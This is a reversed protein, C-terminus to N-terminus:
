ERRLSWLGDRLMADVLLRRHSASPLVFHLRRTGAGRRWHVVMSRPEVVKVVVAGVEERPVRLIVTEAADGGASSLRLIYLSLPSLVLVVDGTTVNGDGGDGADGSDSGRDRQHQQHPQRRWECPVHVQYTEHPLLLKAQYWRAASLRGLLRRRPRVPTPSVNIGTSYLIGQSVQSVLDAAGGVPKAVVGLMGIGIGKLVSGVSWGEDTGTEIPRAVIGAAAGVTGDGLAGLGRMLGNTVTDPAPQRRASEHKAIHRTDLSLRDLNRAVSSAFGSLSTLAGGSVHSLFSVWGQAIGRLLAAVIWDGGADAGSGRSLSRLPLAFLDHLGSGVARFFGTPNGLIELSGILAPLRFIADAIYNASLERGIREPSALISRLAVPSFFLPTRDLGVFAKLSAHLTLVIRVVM